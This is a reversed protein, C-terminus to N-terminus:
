YAAVPPDLVFSGSSPDVVYGRGGAAAAIRPLLEEIERHNERRWKEFGPPSIANVPQRLLVELERELARDKPVDIHECISTLQDRPSQLLEELRVDLWRDPGVIPRAAEVAASLQDWQAFAIEHVPRAVLGRWGEILAFCWRRRHPYGPIQLEEPVFYSRYRGAPDRWGNILSSIVDCPNRRVAVFLADPFLELLYPIRLANEPTKEVFRSEDFHAYFRASVFRREGARAETVRDSEWGSLRPHHLARWIDHGEGPLSGLRASARLVHFVMTTGSRPAGIVFVPREHRVGRLYGSAFRAARRASTRRALNRLRWVVGWPDDVRGLRGPMSEPKSGMPPSGPRHKGSGRTHTATM